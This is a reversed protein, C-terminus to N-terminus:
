LESGGIKEVVLVNLGKRVKILNKCEFIRDEDEEIVNDEAEEIGELENAVELDKVSIDSLYDM